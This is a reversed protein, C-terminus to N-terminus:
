LGCSSGSFSGIRTRQQVPVPAVGVGNQGVDVANSPNPPNTALDQLQQAWGAPGEPFQYRYGDPFRNETWVLCQNSPDWGFEPTIWGDDGDTTLRTVNSPDALSTMYLDTSEQGVPQLFGAEFVPLILVYDYDSPVGATRTLNAWTNFIGDRARSSMFLIKQGDPTFIAQEDWSANDTIRTVQCQGSDLSPLACYFLQPVSAGGGSGQEPFSETYLFGPTNPNPNWWQTEYWHGNAPRVEHDDSLYPRGTVPDVNFKAVRVDWKGSGGGTVFNRNLHAYEIHTGDPSWYAHYDDYGEGSFNSQNTDTLRTQDSGDPHMAWLSSGMGGYGASGITMYHGRWSHFLVWIDDIPTGAPVPQVAPVGNVNNPDSSGSNGNGPDPVDTCTLCKLGTGDLNEIYVQNKGGQKFDQGFLVQDNPLFVPAQGFTTASTTVTFPQTYDWTTSAGAPAAAAVGAALTV